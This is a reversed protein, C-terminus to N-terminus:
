ICTYMYVCAHSTAVQIHEDQPWRRAAEAAAGLLASSLLSISCAENTTPDIRALVAVGAAQLGYDSGHRRMADAVQGVAKSTVLAQVGGEQRALAACARTGLLQVAIDAPRGAMQQVHAAAEASSRARDETSPATRSAASLAGIPEADPPRSATADGNALVGGWWDGGAGWEEVGRETAGDNARAKTLVIVLATGGGGARSAPVVHEDEMQFSCERLQVAGRLVGDFLPQPWFAPQVLLRAHYAPLDKGGATEIENRWAERDGDRLSLKVQSRKTGSPLRVRIEVSGPTESWSYLATAGCRLRGVDAM